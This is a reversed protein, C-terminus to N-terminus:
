KQMVLASPYTEAVKEANGEVKKKLGAMYRIIRNSVAPDFAGIIRAASIGANMSRDLGVTMVPVGDPMQLISLISDWGDISNSSKVPVGILPLPSIAAVMGPLHAAGGAGAIIIKLGNELAFRAYEIMREPTRHASVIDVWHGICFEDLIDIAGQMVPLDSNSGMIIGVQPVRHKRLEGLVAQTISAHNNIQNPDFRLMDKANGTMVNFLELYRKQFEMVDSDRIPPMVDGENGKFGGEMLWERIFEKSLHKQHEGNALREAYGEAYFYRSSDPTHLEDLLRVDGKKDIGFEYKTDVLILGQEAAIETGTSFLTTAYRKILEWQGKSCLNRELIEEETINEDHGQDAKTTPTIMLFPLQENEKLGEPLTYGWCERIGKENYMRWLSGVIYKRVIVEVDIRKCAHGFLVRPHPSSIFWHPISDGLREFFYETMANLIAGKLPIQKPLIVDFASVTDSAIAIFFGDATTYVDRVKGTYTEILGPIKLDSFRTHDLLHPSTKM